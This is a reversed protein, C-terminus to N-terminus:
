LKTIWLLSHRYEVAGGKILQVRFYMMAGDYHTIPFNLAIFPTSQANLKCIALEIDDLIDELVELLDLSEDEIESALRIAHNIQSRVEGGDEGVPYESEVRETITRSMNKLFALTARLISLKPCFTPLSKSLLYDSMERTSLFDSVTRHLLNVHSRGVELLGKCQCELRREVKSHAIKLEDSRFAVTETKMNLAYDKDDYEAEFFSYFPYRLPQESAIAIQLAGAM